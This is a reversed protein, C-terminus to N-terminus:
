EVGQSKRRIADRLEAAEEFREDRVAEALQRRLGSLEDAPASLLPAATKAALEDRWRVLQVLEACEDAKESQGYEELFSRIDRIGADIATVATPYDGLEVFPTAVARSHMMTVYPRWQDFRLRDRDNKAHDRVFKFLLLNRRTDRACLEYRELHWFSLYRHYYQVGERLLRECDDESLSFPASDPHATDHDQQARRYYDLWSDCGEPRQGDPRGDIEMQLLGLDLRLQIKERGDEGAVIRVSVREPDFDWGNLINSIDRSVDTRADSKYRFSHAAVASSRPWNM